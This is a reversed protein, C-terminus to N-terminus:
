DLRKRLTLRQKLFIDGKKLDFRELHNIIAHVGLTTDSKVKSKFWGAFISKPQVFNEYRLLTKRPGLYEFRCSGFMRKSSNSEVQTWSVKYDREKIQSIENRVTYVANPVPWPMKLEFSINLVRRNVVKQLESKLMDPVFSKHREFDSFIAMADFSNSKIYKYYVLKNWSSKEVKYNKLVLGGSKLSVVEKESLENMISESFAGQILGTMLFAIALNKKRQFFRM